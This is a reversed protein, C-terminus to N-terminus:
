ANRKVGQVQRVLKQATDTITQLHVTDPNTCNTHLGSSVGFGACDMKLYQEITTEDIGGTPLLPIHPLPGQLDKIYAPGFRNAPFLKVIDAGYDYANVIESPTLAGPISVAGVEKTRRIVSENLNPSLIFSAGAQIYSAIQDPHLVTGVGITLLGGYKKKLNEIISLINETDATIEILRINGKVLAEVIPYIDEEHLRRLIAIIKHEYISTLTQQM